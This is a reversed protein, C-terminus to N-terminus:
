LANQSQIPFTQHVSVSLNVTPVTHELQAKKETEEKLQQQFYLGRRHLKLPLQASFRGFIHAGHEM